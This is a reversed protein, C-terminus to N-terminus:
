EIPEKGITFGCSPDGAAHCTVQTVSYKKGGTAWDLGELIIGMAAHCIPGDSKRGWCVPCREIVYLFHDGGDQVYSIQDSTTSFAKAMAALGVKVKLKPPLLRFAQDTVGVMAGFNKLGPDFAARGARLSLARGGRPGYMMEMAENIHSFDAFDFQKELNAPPYNGILQVMGATNLLKRFGSEGMIEEIAGLYIRAMLNPYYYGSKEVKAESV